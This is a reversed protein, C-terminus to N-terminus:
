ASRALVAAVEADWTGAIKEGYEKEGGTCGAGSIITAERGATSAPLGDQALFHYALGARDRDTDNARTCHLIGFNFFVLGGAEVEVPTAHTEDVGIATIHHDSGNSRKYELGLDESNPIMEM